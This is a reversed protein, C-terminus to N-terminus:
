LEILEILNNQTRTNDNQRHHAYTHTHSAYLFVLRLDISFAIPLTQSFFDIQNAFCPFNVYIDISKFYIRYTNAFYFPVYM